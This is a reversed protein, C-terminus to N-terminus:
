RHIIAQYYSKSSNRVSQNGLAICLFTHSNNNNDLSKWVFLDTDGQSLIATQAAVQLSSQGFPWESVYKEMRRGPYALMCFEEIANAVAM